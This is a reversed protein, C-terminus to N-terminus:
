KAYRQARRKLKAAKRELKEQAADYGRSTASEPGVPGDLKAELLSRIARALGSLQPHFRRERHM